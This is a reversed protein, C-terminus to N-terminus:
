RAAQLRTRARVEHWEDGREITLVLSWLGPEPLALKAQYIGAGTEQMTFDIDKEHDAPRLFQGRITAGVVPRGERDTVAVKFIQTQGAVAKGVWGKRVQWGRAEQAKRKQLWANYLAEKEQFDHPVTGTFKSEGRGATKPPPFLREMTEPSVGKEAITIITSDVLALLLFFAVLTAPAWHFWRGAQADGHEKRIEWHTTIIGLVYPIMAYFAFHIAFRDLSKWTYVGFPIYAMLTVVIVAFAVQKGSWKTFRYLLVFALFELLVVIGISAALNSM